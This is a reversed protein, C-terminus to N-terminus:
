AAEKLQEKLHRKLDEIHDMINEHIVRTQSKNDTYWDNMKFSRIHDASFSHLHKDLSSFFSSGLISLSSLENNYIEPNNELLHTHLRENKVPLM